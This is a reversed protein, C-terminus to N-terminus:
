GRPHHRRHLEKMRQGAVHTYIQTTSLSSHGLLMQVSRLDAGHNLLHTAFAHRLKHPSLAEGGLGAARAYIKLNRWFAQRTLARGRGSVFVAASMRQGLLQARAGSLYDRLCEIAADGLPVLREKDGKGIVRCVGTDLDLHDLRLNVLESVRLGTAYLTELMARDRAGLASNAPPADLLKEVERESLTVPLKRGQAPAAVEAAPDRAIREAAVAFRYFRKLSSLARAASGASRLAARDGLYAVIDAAVAGLIGRNPNRDRHLDGDGDREGDGDRHLDGDREGDGDGDRHLDGDGEGDRGRLWASFKRLDARYAAMTNESLGSQLWAADLFEDIVREDPHARDDRRKAKM